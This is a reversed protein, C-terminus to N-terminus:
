NYYFLFSMGFIVSMEDCSFSAFPELFGLSLTVRIAHALAVPHILTVWRSILFDLCMSLFLEGQGNSHGFVEQISKGDSFPEFVHEHCLTAFCKLCLDELFHLGGHQCHRMWGSINIHQLRVIPVNGTNVEWMRLEVSPGLHGRLTAVFM